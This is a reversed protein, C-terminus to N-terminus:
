HAGEIVALPTRLLIKLDLWPSWTKAYMLDLRVMDDFAIRNRGNVQWLGTIGPKAELLRRRHWLAYDEVEYALPPRPGVLSMEGMLVNIFQPLEDLSFRRLFAGVRTIRPDSTLKYVGYGTGNGNASQKEAKGAVLKKVYDRHISADSNVYMSRFKLLNFPLGRHGVRRQRFLIPGKSSCRIAVAVAAFVPALVVLALLSGIVDMLRKLYLMSKKAQDQTELDPYFAPNRPSQQADNNWDEPFIHLAIRIQSFQEANLQDSLATSVRDLITALVSNKDDLNIETFMVGAVAGTKYWGTIDTERTRSSLVSVIAQLGQRNTRWSAGTEILMLLFQKRSRETRKRELAIMRQFLGEDLIHRDEAHFPHASSIATIAHSSERNRM